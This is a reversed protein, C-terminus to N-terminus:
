CGMVDAMVFAIFEYYQNTCQFIKIGCGECKRQKLIFAIYLTSKIWKIVESYLAYDYKFELKKETGLVTYFTYFNTGRM